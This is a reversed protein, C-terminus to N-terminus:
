RHEGEEFLYRMNDLAQPPMREGCHDYPPVEATIWGDYEIRDVVVEWDIDGALPITPRHADRLWDKIHLKSIRGELTEIWRSPLGARFANGVDFYAAIPGADEVDDLFAVFEDPSKLFENQVNEVAVTVDREAAYTALERVADAAREYAAEYDTDPDIVAPVILVDEADLVGAADIMDRSIEMGIERREDESSSLPYEWHATTSIAPVALDYKDVAREFRRRGEATTLPGDRDLTPEIGDYGAEAAIACNRELEDTPFGCDNLGYKM